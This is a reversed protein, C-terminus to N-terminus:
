QPIQTSTSLVQANAKRRFKSKNSNTLIRCRRIGFIAGKRFIGKRCYSLKRMIDREENEGKGTEVYKGMRGKTAGTRM